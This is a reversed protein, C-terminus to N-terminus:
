TRVYHGSATRRVTFCQLIDRGMRVTITYFTGALGREQDGLLMHTLFGAMQLNSAFRLPRDSFMTRRTSRRRDPRQMVVEFQVHQNKTTPVMHAQEKNTRHVVIM